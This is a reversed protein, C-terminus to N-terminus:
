VGHKLVACGNDARFVTLIAAAKPIILYEISISESCRLAASQQRVQSLVKCARGPRSCNGRIDAHSNSTDAAAGRRVDLSLDLLGPMRALLRFGPAQSPQAARAEALGAAAWERCVLRVALTDGDHLQM